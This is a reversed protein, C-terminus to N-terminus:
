ERAGPASSPLGASQRLKALAEPSLFPELSYALNAIGWFRQDVHYNPAYPVGRPMSPQRGANIVIERVVYTAASAVHEGSPLDRRTCIVEIRRPYSLATGTGLKVYEYYDFQTLSRKEILAVRRVRPDGSDDISVWFRIGRASDENAAADTSVEWTGALEERGEKVIKLKGWRKAEHALFFACHMPNLFVPTGSPFFAIMVKSGRFLTFRGGAQGSCIECHLARRVSPDSECYEAVMETHGLVTLRVFRHLERYGTSEHLEKSEALVKKLGHKSTVKQLREGLAAEVTKTWEYVVERPPEPSVRHEELLYRGWKVSRAKRGLASMISSVTPPQAAQQACVDGLALVLLLSWPLVVRPISRTSHTHLM